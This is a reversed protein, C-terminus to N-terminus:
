IVNLKVIWMSEQVSINKKERKCIVIVCTFINQLRTLLDSIHFVGACQIDLIFHWTNMENVNCKVFLLYFMFTIFMMM